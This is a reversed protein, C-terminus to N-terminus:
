GLVAPDAAASHPNNLWSTCHPRPMARGSAFGATRAAPAPGPWVTEVTAPYGRLSM